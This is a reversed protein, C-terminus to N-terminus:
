LADFAFWAIVTLVVLSAALLIWTTAGGRGGHEAFRDRYFKGGSRARLKQQVGGLLDVQAPENRLAAAARQVSQLQGFETRLEADTKLAAEFEARMDPDLEGDLARDFLRRATDPNM